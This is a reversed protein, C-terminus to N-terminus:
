LIVPIYSYTYLYRIYMVCLVYVYIYIYTCICLKIYNLTIGHLLRAAELRDTWAPTPPKWVFVLQTTSFYPSKLTLVHPHKGASKM